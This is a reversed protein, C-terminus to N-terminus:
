GKRGNVYNYVEGGQACSRQIMETFIARVGQEMGKPDNGNDINVNIDGFAFQAASTTSGGTGSSTAGVVGGNAYGRMLRYLNAVGLRRTAEKTFVFEGGHVIGKAEYKGGQGTFGGGAFGNGVIGGNAHSSFLSGMTFGGGGGFSASLTNFIVMKTIMEIIMSIISKAFDAFNAKGTMLFETMVNSLGDLASTAVSGINAYMNTASDGYNKFANEAGALWDNRKADEAAYYADSAATMKKYQEEELSGGKAQWDAALKAREAARQQERDSMGAGQNLAATQQNMQAVYKNAEDMRRNLQEQLVIQDGIEAKQRSLALIRDKDALTQQEIKTLSRTKAAEELVAFKAEDNWLTKRQQSIKDNVSTHEKLVKLQAQLALIDAQYQESIRDGQDVTVKQAKAKKNLAEAEKEVAEKTSQSYQDGQGQNKLQDRYGKEGKLIRANREEVSKALEDNQKKANAVVEDQQAAIDGFIDSMGPIKAAQKAVSSIFEGIAIDGSNILMQVQEVTGAVVDIILNTGALFGQSIEEWADSSWKKIDIWMKQLPTANDSMKAIRKEMVDAFLRTAETTAATAGQTKELNSIYTLQGKELFNFQENLSALGKVPDKSIKDFYGTIQDASEGTVTAWDATVRTILRIQEQTYKGSKVLETAISRITGLTALSSDSIEANMKAIEASSKGAYNGTLILSNALETNAKDASYAAVAIGGLAGVLGGLILRAPTLYSLLVKFTNAVGGFSDKIQGGQQIAVMWVPMGSSLSTVVDTIQMPLFRLAQQYQKASLGALNMQKTSGKLSEEQARLQAIFPAAQQTVGLQAAKMELLETRSKGIAEAQDQLSNVFNTATRQAAAAERDAAAKQRAAEASATLAEQQQRMQAIYPASSASVGLTAARMELMEIRSKGLAAAQQQLTEVFARGQQEARAKNQSEELAARGEETLARQMVQLKTQQSDLVQGLRLFEKEPIVGASWLNDLQGAVKSLQRLKGAIPDVAGQLQEFERRQRSVQDAADKARQRAVFEANSFDEVSSKAGDNAQKFEMLSKVARDVQYVDVGLSIGTFKEAM